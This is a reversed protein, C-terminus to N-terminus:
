GTYIFYDFQVAKSFGAKEYVGLARENESEVDLMVKKDGNRFAFDKVWKLLATGIGQGQVTPQVALATIWQVEGEKTSTITGVIQGNQEAVWLIIGETTTNFDILEVSEERLDGFAESLIEIVSEQDCENYQRIFLDESAPQSGEAKSEFTAESFSYSYGHKELLKRGYRDTEIIIALEGEAERQILGESLVQLLAEDIGIKRYMPDVLMSWEYTNLGIQDIAGIVGVLKNTTDDYALIFFGRSKPNRSAFLNLMNLYPSGDLVSAEETLAKVENYTEEDIPFSATIISINM